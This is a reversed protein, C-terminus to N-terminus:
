GGGEGEGNFFIFLYGCGGGGYNISLYNFSDRIVWWYNPASFVTVCKGDHGLEYGDAKVEHSRIVYDLENRKLFERTVDPGFQIGVGRKSPARGQAEM